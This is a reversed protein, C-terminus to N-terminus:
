DKKPVFELKRYAVTVADAHLVDEPSMRGNGFRYDIGGTYQTNIDSAYYPNSPSGIRYRDLTLNIDKIDERKQKILEVLGKSDRSDVTVTYIVNDHKIDFIYGVKGGSVKWDTDGWHSDYTAGVRRIAEIIRHKEHDAPQSFRTGTTFIEGVLKVGQVNNFTTTRLLSEEEMRSNRVNEEIKAQVDPRHHPKSVLDSERDQLTRELSTPSTHIPTMSANRISIAASALAVAGISGLAANKLDVTM